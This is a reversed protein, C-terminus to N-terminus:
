EAKMLKFNIETDMDMMMNTTKKVMTSDTITTGMGLNLNITGEKFLGKDADFSFRSNGKLYCLYDQNIEEPITYDSVDIVTNLKEFGNESGVYTVHNFGKVNIASGFINFPMSMKLGVTDGVKMKKNTIPFLTRALMVSSQQIHGDITGDPKLDQFLITNPMSTTDTAVYNGLSDKSMGISQIDTFLVDAFEKDKIKVLLKATMLSQQKGGMFSMDTSISQRYDYTLKTYDNFNWRIPKKTPLTAAILLFSILLLPVLLKRQM